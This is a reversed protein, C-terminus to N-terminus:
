FRRHRHEPYIVPNVVVGSARDIEVDDPVMEKSVASKKVKFYDALIEMLRVNAKGDQARADIKIRFNKGDKVVEAKKSNPFVRVQVIM